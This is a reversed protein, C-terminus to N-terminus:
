ILLLSKNNVNTIVETADGQNTVYSINMSM